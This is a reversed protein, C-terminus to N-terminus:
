KTASNPHPEKYYNKKCRANKYWEYERGLDLYELLSRYACAEGEKFGRVFKDENMKECSQANEALYM